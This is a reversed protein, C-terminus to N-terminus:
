AVLATHLRGPLGDAARGGRGAHLDNHEQDKPPKTPSRYDRWYDMRKSETQRWMQM